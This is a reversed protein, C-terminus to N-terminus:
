EQELKEACNVCCTTNPLLELRSVPIDEGCLSCIFYQESEIRELAKYILDLEKESSNGLSELVEDNERETAQEEWDASMGEHRIDKDIANIRQTIDAKQDLLLHKFYNLDKM